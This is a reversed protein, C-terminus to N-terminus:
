PLLMCGNMCGPGAKCPKTCKFQCGPIGCPYCCVLSEACTLQQDGGCPDGEQGGAVDVPVPVDVSASDSVADVAAIVDQAAVADGAADLGAVDAVVETLATDTGVVVDAPTVVDPKAAVDASGDASVAADKPTESTDAAADAIVGVDAQATDPLAAGQASTSGCACLSLSLAALLLRLSNM